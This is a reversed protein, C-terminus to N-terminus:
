KGMPVEDYLPLLLFSMTPYWRFRPPSSLIAALLAENTFQYEKAELGPGKLWWGCSKGAQTHAVTEDIPRDWFAPGIM